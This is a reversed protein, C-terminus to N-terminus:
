WWVVGCVVVGCRAARGVVVVVAGRVGKVKVVRVCEERAGAVVGVYACVCRCGGGGGGSSGRGWGWGWGWVGEGGWVCGVKEGM